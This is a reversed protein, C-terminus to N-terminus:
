AGRRELALAFVLHSREGLRWIWRGDLRTESILLSLRVDEACVRRMAQPNTGTFFNRDMILRQELDM